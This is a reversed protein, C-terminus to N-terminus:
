LQGSELKIHIAQCNRYLKLTEPVLTFSEIIKEFECGQNLLEPLEQSLDHIHVSHKRALLLYYLYHLVRITMKANGFIELIPALLAKQLSRSRAYLILEEKNVTCITPLLPITTQDSFDLEPWAGSPQEFDFLEAFAKQYCWSMSSAVPDNELTKDSSAYRQLVPFLARRIDSLSADNKRVSIVRHGLGAILLMRSLPQFETTANLLLQIAKAEIGTTTWALFAIVNGTIFTNGTSRWTAILGQMCKESIMRNAFTDGAMRYIRANFATIGFQEFHHTRLCLVFFQGLLFEQWQRQSFRVQNASTPIFITRELLIQCINQDELLSFSNIFQDAEDNLDSYYFDKDNTRMDEFFQQWKQRQETAELRLTDINIEARSKYFFLWAALIMARRLHDIEIILGSDTTTGVLHSRVMVTNITQRMIAAQNM